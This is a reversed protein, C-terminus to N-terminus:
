VRCMEAAWMRRCTVVTVANTMVVAGVIATTLALPYAAAFGAPSIHRILIGIYAWIISLGAIRSRGIVITATGIGAGVLLMVVTWLEASFGWGMWGMKTLQVCVNAISAAIIWGFYLDFGARGLERKFLTGGMDTINQRIIVLSLLLAFICLTSLGIANFHWAFIWAINLFCSVAFWPGIAERVGASHEGKDFVEWQYAIFLALLLYIVGWIAFTVPAPTFLNPYMASIEGTTNGGIPLLEALANVAIMAAFAATNIWKMAKM